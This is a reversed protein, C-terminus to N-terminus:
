RTGLFDTEESTIKITAFGMTPDVLHGHQEEYSEFSPVFFRWGNDTKEASAKELEALCAERLERHHVVEEIRKRAITRADEASVEPERDTM